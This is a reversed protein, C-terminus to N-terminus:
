KRYATDAGYSAVRYVDILRSLDSASVIGVLGGSAVVLARNGSEPKLHELLTTLPEDPAATPVQSLPIAAERVLTAARESAPIGRLQALTILGIISGDRDAVPYASHRDGLLYRHIFDEVTIDAPATHPQATMVDAVRVNAVAQRTIVQTEEERSAAFIFWGIFALWVGGVLAGTLFELLGFAILIFALIRGARAAGIVARVSDGYRRWLYAKLVRGGDLPAGPLLNFVGLLLNIGALWWAVGVVIHAVGLEDLGYATAGFVAALALSMLPGSVSIRFAEIPTKPEGGLRTVGGFLWLTVDFVKVSARRALVAHTLEHALLSALLILAGCAGALWYAGKPYGPTTVPLTSALSWTFLWLIVLVSWNVSVPFGVIRGIPISGM